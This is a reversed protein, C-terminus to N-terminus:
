IWIRSCLASNQSVPTCTIFATAICFTSLGGLYASRSGPDSFNPYNRRLRLRHCDSTRHSQLGNAHRPVGAIPHTYHLGSLLCLTQTWTQFQTQKSGPLSSVRGREAHNVARTGCDLHNRPTWATGSGALNAGATTPWTNMRTVRYSFGPSPSSPWGISSFWITEKLEMCWYVVRLCGRMLDCALELARRRSISVGLNLWVIQTAPSSITKGM